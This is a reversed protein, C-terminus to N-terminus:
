HQTFQQQTTKLTQLSVRNNTTGDLPEVNNSCFFEIFLQKAGKRVESSMYWYIYFTCLYNSHYLILIVQVIVYEVNLRFNSKEVHSTLDFYIGQFSFPVGSVALIILQPFLMRRVQQSLQEHSGGPAVAGRLNRVTGM